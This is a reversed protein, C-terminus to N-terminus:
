VELMLTSTSAVDHSSPPGGFGGGAVRTQRALFMSSTHALLLCGSGGCARTMQNLTEVCMCVSECLAPM